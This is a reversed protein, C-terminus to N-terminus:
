MDGNTDYGGGGGGGGRKIQWTMESVVNSKSEISYYDEVHRQISFM